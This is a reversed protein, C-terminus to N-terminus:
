VAANRGRAAAWRTRVDVAAAFTAPPTAPTAERRLRARELVEPPTRKFDRLLNFSDEPDDVALADFVEDALGAAVAGAADYWTEEAMLARIEAASSGMRKAYMAAIIGDLQELRDMAKKHERQDGVTDMWANHIMTRANDAIRLEGPSAALSVVSAISYAAADIWVRKTAPHRGLANYIALGQDVLGGYSNIRIDLVAVDGLEELQRIFTDSGYWYGIDSYIRIEANNEGAVRNMAWRKLGGTEKTAPM